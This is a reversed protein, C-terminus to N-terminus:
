HLDEQSNCALKGGHGDGEPSASTHQEHNEHVFSQYQVIGYVKYRVAILPDFDKHHASNM